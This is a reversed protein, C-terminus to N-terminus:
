KKGEIKENKRYISVGFAIAGAFFLIVAPTFTPYLYKKFFNDLEEPLFGSASLLIGEILIASGFGLWTLFFIRGIREQGEWESGGQESM